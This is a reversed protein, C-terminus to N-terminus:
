PGEWAGIDPSTGRETGTIDDTPARSPDAADVAASGSGTMAWSTVLATFAECINASGDSFSHTASDFHPNVASAPDALVPDAVVSNPDDTFNVLDDTSTPIAESGNWYLNNDLVCSLTEGITTDSVVGDVNGHAAYVPAGYSLATRATIM